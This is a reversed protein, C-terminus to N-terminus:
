LVSSFNRHLALVANELCTETGRQAVSTKLTCLQSSSPHLLTAMPEGRALRGGLWRKQARDRNGLLPLLRQSPSWVASQSWQCVGGGDRWFFEEGRGRLCAM